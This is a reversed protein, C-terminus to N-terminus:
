LCYRQVIVVFLSCVLLFVRSDKIFSGSSKQSGDDNCNYNWSGVPGMCGAYSMVYAIYNQEFAGRVLHSGPGTAYVPVDEGGHTEDILPLMAQHRYTPEARDAATLQEVRIWTNALTRNENTEMQMEARHTYFGPGNAYTLTEYPEVDPKNAFGLIDNGRIPYGNFTLAHSHDATVIILTDSPNTNEYAAQVAKEMEIFEELALRAHNQHHAHDIRGGEVMLVFGNGSERTLVELAAITMQKLSPEGRPSKDRISSYSMHNLAFLGMLRDVDERDVNLLEETNRVFTSNDRNIDIWEKVLDRGDTRVCQSEMTGNFKPMNTYNPWKGDDVMGMSSGGGALVVHMRNGPSKEVLQRAIDIESSKLQEPINADCERNRNPTQAYLAAPTAHTLRTTTVLGARKGANLGWEIFSSLRGSEITPGDIPVTADMSLSGYLTKVGTFMATATGASDPVQKDVNYTQM